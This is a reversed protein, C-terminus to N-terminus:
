IYYNNSLIPIISFTLCFCCNFNGAERPLGLQEGRAELGLATFVVTGVRQRRTGPGRGGSKWGYLRRLLEPLTALGIM